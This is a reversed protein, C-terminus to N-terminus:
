TPPVVRFAREANTLVQRALADAPRERIEALFALTCAAYAPECRKGRHCQPALYPADTEVLLKDEPVIRAAERLSEAKPYTVNGAFSIYCGLALCQEAFAADGGFCHMICPPMNPAYERLIAITDTEAARSHIVAPLNLTAALMLQQEFAPRQVARPAYEKFYDLGTEGIAVVGPRKALACLADNGHEQLQPANYPHYGVVAYVREGTMQCAAESGALDDGVIVLWALTDLARALVDDRDGDFQRMQLHCHTDVYLM